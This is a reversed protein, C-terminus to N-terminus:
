KIFDTPKKVFEEKCGTGCFGYVKGKYNATDAVGKSVDMECVPDIKSALISVDIALKDGEKAMPPKQGEIKTTEGEAKNQQQGCSVMLLCAAIFALAKM